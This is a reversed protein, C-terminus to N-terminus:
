GRDVHAPARRRQDVVKLDKFLQQIRPVLAVEFDIGIRFYVKAHSLGELQKPTLDYAHPSQGPGVLVEVDVREGGVHEVFYAQPLISVVVHLKDSPVKQAVAPPLVCALSACATSILTVRRQGAWRVIGLPTM